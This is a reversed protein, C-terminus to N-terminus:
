TEIVQDGSYWVRETKEASVVPTPLTKGELQTKQEEERRRLRERRTQRPRIVSPDILDQGRYAQDPGDTQRGAPRAVPPYAHLFRPQGDKQFFEGVKDIKIFRRYRTLGPKTEPAPTEAETADMDEPAGEEEPAPPDPAAQACDASPDECDTTGTAARIATTQKNCGNVWNKIMEEPGDALLHDAWAPDIEVFDEAEDVDIDLIDVDALDDDGFNPAAQSTSAPQHNVAGSTSPQGGGQITGSAQTTRTIRVGLGARDLDSLAAGEGLIQPDLGAYAPNDCGVIVEHSINLAVGAQHQPSLAIGPAAPAIQQATPQDATTVPHNQAAARDNEIQAEVVLKNSNCDTM